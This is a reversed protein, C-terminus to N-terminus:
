GGGEVVRLKSRNRWCEPCIRSGSRRFNCLRGCWDCPKLVMAGGKSSARIGDTAYRGSLVSPYDRPDPTQHAVLSKQADQSDDSAASGSANECGQTNRESREQESERGAKSIAWM